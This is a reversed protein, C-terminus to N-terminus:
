VFDGRERAQREIAEVCLYGVGCLLAGIGVASWGMGRIAAISLALLALNLLGFSLTVRRHSWGSRAARQYAHSRHAEWPKERRL